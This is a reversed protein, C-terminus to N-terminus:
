RAWTKEINSQLYMMMATAKGSSWDTGSKARFAEVVRQRYSILETAVHNRFIDSNSMKITQVYYVREIYPLVINVLLRIDAIACAARKGLISGDSTILDSMTVNAGGILKWISMLEVAQPSMEQSAGFTLSVCTNVVEVHSLESLLLDCVKVLSSLQGGFTSQLRRMTTCQIHENAVIADKIMNTSRLLREVANACSSAANLTSHTWVPRPYGMTWLIYVVLVFAIILSSSSAFGVLSSPLALVNM